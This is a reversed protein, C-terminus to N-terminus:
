KRIPLWAITREIKRTGTRGTTRAPTKRTTIRAASRMSIRTFPTRTALLDDETGCSLWLTPKPGRRKALKKPSTFFIV